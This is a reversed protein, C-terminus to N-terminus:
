GTVGKVAWMVAEELKTTAIASERTGVTFTQLLEFAKRKITDLQALENPKLDRYTPRFPNEQAM